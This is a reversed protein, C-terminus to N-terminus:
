RSVPAGSFTNMLTRMRKVATKFVGRTIQIHDSLLDFFDEKDIRLLLCESTPTATVVRPAEDFLAWTGFAEKPGATTIERDGQHLRVHGELVLYLADSNESERYIIEDASYPVEEAIAALYSLDETPVDSFVDVNQLFIVKEIITLM